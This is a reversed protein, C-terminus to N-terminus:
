SNLTQNNLLFQIDQRSVEPNAGKHSAVLAGVACGFTVAEPYDKTYLVKSLLAALFSDGAGITDAVKVKFGNHNFFQNDIYLVAGDKGKTVCITNTNTLESLFLIHDEITDSNSGLAHAVEFLEDDNLKIFDALKMMQELFDISYFPPRINVDFIKYRANELLTLLTTKSVTDRCALSGFILADAEKVVKLNDDSIEIKDWASPYVIDYSASGKADLTVLVEGTALKDDIQILSTDVNKEKIINLLEKGLADDGIKSIMKTDIGLSQLRISVNMPAGGAIKGTPLVDWLVEGFCVLKKNM